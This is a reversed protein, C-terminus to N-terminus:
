HSHIVGDVDHNLDPSEEVQDEGEFGVNRPGGTIVGPICTCKQLSLSLQTKRVILYFMNWLIIHM